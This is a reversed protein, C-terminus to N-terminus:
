NQSSTESLFIIIWLKVYTTNVSGGENWSPGKIQESRRTCDQTSDSKLHFSLETGWSNHVKFCTALDDNGHKDNTFDSQSSERSWDPELSCKFSKINKFGQSYMTPPECILFVFCCVFLCFSNNEEKRKVCLAWWLLGEGLVECVKQCYDTQPLQPKVKKPILNAM